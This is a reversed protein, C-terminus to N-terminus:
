EVEFKATVTKNTLLAVRNNFIIHYNGAALRLDVKGVSVYNSQYYIRFDTQNQFNIFNDDDVVICDIDNKGGQASFKGTLRANRNLTFPFDQYSRAGVFFTQDFVTVKQSVPEIENRDPQAPNIKTKPQQRPQEIEPTNYTTTQYVTEDNQTTSLANKIASFNNAALVALGVGIIVVLGIVSFKLIDKSKNQNKSHASNQPLGGKPTPTACQYCVIATEPLEIGCKYCFM